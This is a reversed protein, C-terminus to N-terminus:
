IRHDVFPHIYSFLLFLFRKIVSGSPCPTNSPFQTCSPLFSPPCPVIKYFPITWLYFDLSYDSMPNWGGMTDVEVMSLPWCTTGLGISCCACLLCSIPFSMDFCGFSLSVLLSIRRDKFAKPYRNLAMKPKSKSFRPTIQHNHLQECSTM